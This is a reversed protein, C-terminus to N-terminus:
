QYEQLQENREDLNHRLVLAKKPAGGRKENSIFLSGLKSSSKVFCLTRLNMVRHFYDKQPLSAEELLTIKCHVHKSKESV